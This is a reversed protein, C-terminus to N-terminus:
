HAREGAAAEARTLDTSDGVVRQITATTQADRWDAVAGVRLHIANAAAQVILRIGAFTGTPFKTVHLTGAHSESDIGSGSVISPANAQNEFRALTSCDLGGDSTRATMQADFGATGAKCGSWPSEGVDVQLELQTQGSAIGTVQIEQPDPLQWALSGRWAGAVFSRLEALTPGAPSLADWSTEYGGDPCSADRPLTADRDVYADHYDVGADAPPGSGCGAMGVISTALSAQFARRVITSSSEEVVGAPTNIM